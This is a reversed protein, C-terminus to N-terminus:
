TQFSSCNVIIVDNKATLFQVDNVLYELSVRYSLVSSQTLGVAYSITICISM